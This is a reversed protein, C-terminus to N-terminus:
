GMIMAEIIGEADEEVPPWINLIAFGAKELLERWQSDTREMGATITMMVVDSRSHDAPAGQEPVIREYLLLKSYGPKMATKVRHLIKLCPEDSWNHLIHHYFYCRAGKVPQETFFDYAMREISEDLGKIGDIVPPLDQLILRGQKHPFRQYFELLDHGNGGAVDVLLVSQKDVDVGKLLYEKVPFWDLWRSRVRMRNEMFVNFDKVANPMSSMLQYTNLKTQFAYQVPGDHPDVPCRYGNERMYKPAQQAGEVVVGGIVRHTATIWETAMAKTIPNPKWAREGTEDIIGISSLFRLIRIILLEEGGSLSALEKSTIGDDHSVVLKFLDLDVAIRAAMSRFPLYALGFAVDEPRELSAALKQSLRLAEKRVGKDNGSLKERLDNLQTILVSPDNSNM